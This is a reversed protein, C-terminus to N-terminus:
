IGEGCDSEGGTASAPHASELRQEGKAFTGNDFGAEVTQARRSDFFDDDDYAMSSVVNSLLQFIKIKVEGDIGIRIALHACRDCTWNLSNARLGLSYQNRQDILGGNRTVDNSKQNVFPSTFLHSENLRFVVTATTM